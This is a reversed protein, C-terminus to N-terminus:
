LYDKLSITSPHSNIWKIVDAKQYICKRGLKKYPIGEGLHRSRELWARSYTTVAAITKQDFYAQNPADWFEKLLMLKNDLPM